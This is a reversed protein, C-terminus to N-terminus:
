RTPTLLYDVRAGGAASTGSALIQGAENIALARQLVIARSSPDGPDILSTLDRLSGNGWVFAREDHGGDQTYFGVIQGRENSALAHSQNLRGSAPNASPVGPPLGLDLLSSGDWLFARLAGAATLSTGVVKGADDIDAASAFAGGLTPLKQLGAGNWLLAYGTGTMTFTVAARGSANIQVNCSVAKGFLIAPDNQAIERWTGGTRLYARAVPERGSYLCGVAQGAENLDTVISETSVADRLSVVASGDWFGGRAGVWGQSNLSYAFNLQGAPSPVSTWSTGDWIGARFDTAAANEQYWFLVRGRDDLAVATFQTPLSPPAM